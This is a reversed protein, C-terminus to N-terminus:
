PICSNFPNNTGPKCSKATFSSDMRASAEMSFTRAMTACADSGKRSRTYPIWTVPLCWRHLLFRLLLLLPLMLVVVVPLVVLLVWLVVGPDSSSRSNSNSRSKSKSTVTVVVPSTITTSRTSSPCRRPRTRPPGISNGTPISNVLTLPRITETGDVISSV